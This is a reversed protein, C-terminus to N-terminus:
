AGRFGYLRYRHRIQYPRTKNQIPHGRGSYGKKQASFWYHHSYGAAEFLPLELQAEMAKIEQLCIVDPDVAGLWNLFGKRMAARIGNVNYSVLKMIGIEAFTVFCNFMRLLPKWITSFTPSPGM